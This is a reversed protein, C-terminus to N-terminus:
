LHEGRVPAGGRGNVLGGKIIPSPWGEGDRTVQRLAEQAFATQALATVSPRPTYLSSVEFTRGWQATLDSAGAVQSSQVCEDHKPMTTTPQDSSVQPPQNSRAEAPTLLPSPSVDLSGYM